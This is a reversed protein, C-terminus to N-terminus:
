SSLLVQEYEKGVNCYGDFYTYLTDFPEDNGIGESMMVKRDVM